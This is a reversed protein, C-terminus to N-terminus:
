AKDTKKRRIPMQAIVVAALMLACGIIETTKMTEHLIIVGAIASFVSELSMTLSAIAPPTDKQGLIQLTYAVGCSLVGAYLLAWKGAWLGTFTIDETLIAIPMTLCGAVFFQSCSLAVGDAQPAFHAVVIIHCAFLLASALMMWDGLGLSFGEGSVSAMLYMGAVSLPVGIWVGKEPKRGLLLGLLPVLVVYLSSIFGAKGATTYQLGIQQVTAAAAFVAGCSLSAAISPMPGSKGLRRRLLVMPLLSLFGLVARFSQFTIPGLHEMGIRQAVFATGWILATCLLMLSGSTKKM